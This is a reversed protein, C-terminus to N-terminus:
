EKVMFALRGDREPEKEFRLIHYKSGANPAAALQNILDHVVQLAEERSLTLVSVREQDNLNIVLM